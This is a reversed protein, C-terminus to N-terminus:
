LFHTPYAGVLFYNLVASSLLTTALTLMRHFKLNYGKVSQEPPSVIFRWGVHIIFDDADERTM